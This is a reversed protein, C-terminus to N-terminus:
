RDAPTRDSAQARALVQASDSTGALLAIRAAEM